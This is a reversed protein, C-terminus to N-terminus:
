LSAVPNGAPATLARTRWPTPQPGVAPSRVPCTTGTGDSANQTGSHATRFTMLRGRPGDTLSQGSTTARALVVLDDPSDAPDTASLDVVGGATIQNLAGQHEVTNLLVALSVRGAELRM